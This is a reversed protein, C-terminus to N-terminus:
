SNDQPNGYGSEIQGYITDLAKQDKVNNKIVALVMNVFQSFKESKIEIEQKSGNLRHAEEETSLMKMLAIQLAPADSKYWKSKMSRKVRIRNTDLAKIIDDVKHLELQYFREKSLGMDLCVEEITLPNQKENKAATIALKKWQEPSRQITM